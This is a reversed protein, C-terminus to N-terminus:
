TFAGGTLVPVEDGSATIGVVDVDPAGIMVDVHIASSNVRARDEEAVQSHYGNGLAVHSAANEDLLTEMYVRGTAGIRGEADVLAVEGLRAAGEDTAFMARVADQGESATVEVLSGREFRLVLDEVVTGSLLALPKTCRAVGETRLPDPTTYIEESPLNSLSRLRGDVFEGASSWKSSPLLGVTLDTGPGTFRVADLRRETIRASAAELQDMRERWAAVPDDAELRMMHAIEKWLTDLDTAPRCAAAWSETPAPVVCWDISQDVAIAKLLSPTLPLRDLGARSPDVGASSGPATIGRLALRAGGEAVLIKWREDLWPPVWGPDEAHMLRSRRVWPDLYAVDVYKAGRRYAAEAIARAVDAQEPEATLIMPQDRELVVGLTLILDAFRDIM